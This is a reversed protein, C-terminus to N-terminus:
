SFLAPVCADCVSLQATVHYDTIDLSGAPAAQAARLAAIGRECGSLQAHQRAKRCLSNMCAREPVWISCASRCHELHLLCGSEGYPDRRCGALPRIRVPAAPAAAALSARPAGNEPGALGLMRLKDKRKLRKGAATPRMYAMIKAMRELVSADVGGMLADV